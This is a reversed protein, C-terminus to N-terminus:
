RATGWHSEPNGDIDTLTPMASVWRHCQASSARPAQRKLDHMSFTAGLARRRCSTRGREASQQLYGMQAYFASTGATSNTTIAYNVNAARGMLWRAESQNSPIYRYQAATSEIGLRPPPLSAQPVIESGSGAQGLADGVAGMSAAASVGAGGFSRESGQWASEVFNGRFYNFYVIQIVEADTIAQGGNYRESYTGRFRQITAYDLEKFSANWQSGGYFKGDAGIGGADLGQGFQATLVYGGGGNGAGNNVRSGYDGTYATASRENPNTGGAYSYM